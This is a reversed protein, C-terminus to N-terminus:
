PRREREAMLHRRRASLILQLAVLGGAVLLALLLLLRRFIRDALTTARDFARDVWVLGMQRTDDLVVPGQAGLWSQLARRERTLFSQVHVREDSLEGLTAQRESSLYGAVATAASALSPDLPASRVLYEAQWRAQKPLFASQLTAWAQLDQMQDVVTAVAGLPTVGSSATLHALLPVTSQRATLTTTLPHTGVWERLRRRTEPVRSPGALAGWLSELESEMGRIQASAIARLGGDPLIGTKDVAGEIQALLVWADLLAAVPDPEFLAAQMAPIGNIKFRTMELQVRPDRSRNALDDALAELLGSFRGALARVRVRLEEISVNSRSVAEFLRSQPRATGCASAVAALLALCRVPGWRKLQVCRQHSNWRQSDLRLSPDPTM